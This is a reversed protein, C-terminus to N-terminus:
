YAQREDKGPVCTGKCFNFILLYPYTLDKVNKGDKILDIMLDPSREREGM